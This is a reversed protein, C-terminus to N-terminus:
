EVLVIYDPAPIRSIKMDKGGAPPLCKFHRSINQNPATTSPDSCEFHLSSTIRWFHGNMNFSVSHANRKKQLHKLERLLPLHIHAEGFPQAPLALPLLWGTHVPSTYMKWVLNYKSIIYAWQFNPLTRHPQVTHQSPFPLHIRTIGLFPYMMCGVLSLFILIYPM